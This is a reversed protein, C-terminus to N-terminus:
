VDTPVFVQVEQEETKETSHSEIVYYFICKSLQEFLSTGTHFYIDQVKKKFTM